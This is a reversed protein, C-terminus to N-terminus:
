IAKKLKPFIQSLMLQVVHLKSDQKEKDYNLQAEGDAAYRGKKEMEVFLEEIRRLMNRIFHSTELELKEEDLLHDLLLELEDRLDVFESHQQPIGKQELSQIKKRVDGVRKIGTRTEKRLQKQNEEGM